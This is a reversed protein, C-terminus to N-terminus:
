SFDETSQRGCSQIEIFARSMRRRTAVFDRTSGPPLRRQRVEDVLGSGIADQWAATHLLAELRARHAPHYPSLDLM